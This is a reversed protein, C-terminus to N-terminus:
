CVGGLSRGPGRPSGGGAREPLGAAWGAQATPRHRQGAQKSVFCVCLWRSGERGGGRGCHRRAGQLAGERRLGRGTRPRARERRRGRGRPGWCPPDAAPDEGDSPREKLFCSLNKCLLFSSFLVFCLSCTYLQVKIRQQGAKGRDGGRNWYNGEVERRNIQYTM